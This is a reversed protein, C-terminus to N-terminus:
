SRCGTFKGGVVVKVDDYRWLRWSVIWRMWRVSVRIWLLILRRCILRVRIRMGNMRRLVVLRLLCLRFLVLSIRGVRKLLVSLLALRCILRVMLMVRVNRLVLAVLISSRRVRRNVRWRRSRWMRNRLMWFILRWGVLLRLMLMNRCYGSVLWFLVTRLRRRLRMVLLVLGNWLPRRVRYRTMLTLTMGLLLPRWDNRM